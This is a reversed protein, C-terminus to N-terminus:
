TVLQMLALAGVLLLAAALGFEIGTVRM